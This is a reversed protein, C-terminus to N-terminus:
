NEKGQVKIDLYFLCGACFKKCTRIYIQKGVRPETPTHLKVTQTKVSAARIVNERNKKKKFIHYEKM